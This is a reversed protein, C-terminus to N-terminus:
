GEIEKRLVETAEEDIRCNLKVIKQSGILDDVLNLMKNFDEDKKSEFTLQRMVLALKQANSLYEVSNTKSKNVFAILELPASKAKCIGSSGCLPLSHVYWRGNENKLVARDGNIIEANRYKRWLEAQTSKGGESDASFLIAKNNYIIYSSHLIVAKYFLLSSIFDCCRFLEATVRLKEYGGNTFYFHGGAQKKKSVVICEYDNEDFRKNVHIFEDATEYIDASPNSNILRCGKPLSYENESFTYCHRDEKLASSDVRFVDYPTYDVLKKDTQFEFGVGGINYCYEKMM